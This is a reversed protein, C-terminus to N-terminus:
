TLLTAGLIFAVAAVLIAVGTWALATHLRDMGWSEVADTRRLPAQAQADQPM